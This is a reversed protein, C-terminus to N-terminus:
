DDGPLNRNLPGETKVNRHYSVNLVETTSVGRGVKVISIYCHINIESVEFV